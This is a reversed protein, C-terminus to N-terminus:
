DNRPMKEYKHCIPWDFNLMFYLNLDAINYEGKTLGQKFANFIEKKERKSHLIIYNDQFNVREDM